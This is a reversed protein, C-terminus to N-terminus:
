NEGNSRKRGGRRVRIPPESRYPRDKLIGRKGQFLPERGAATIWDSIELDRLFRKSLNEPPDANANTTGTNHTTINAPNEPSVEGPSPNNTPRPDRHSADEPSTGKPEDIMSQVHDIRNGDRRM